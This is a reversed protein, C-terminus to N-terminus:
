WRQNLRWLNKVEESPNLIAPKLVLDKWRYVVLSTRDSCIRIAGDQDTRFIKTNSLNELVQRHPHGYPNEKGASIVGISPNVAQLFAKTSSTRSGHHAVDLVDARLYPAWNLMTWEAEAQVDGTFLVSFDRLDARVVISADNEDEPVFGKQPNLVLLDAGEMVIRDGASVQIVSTKPPVGLPSELHSVVLHGVQFDRLLRGLGGAHDEASHSIVLLDIRDKGRYRLYSSTEIGERGTDFVLVRGDTEVIATKAQGADLFTVMPEHCLPRQLAFALLSLVVLVMSARYRRLFFLVMAIYLFVVGYLSVQPINLYSFPWGSIHQIVNYFARGLADLFAVAVTKGTILFIVVWLFLIPILVFSFFPVVILNVLLGVTSLGKFFFVSIPLTGLFAGATTILYGLSTRKIWNGRVMSGAKQWFLGIFLVAGYSLLFSPSVIAEPELFSVVLASFGLAYLWQRSKGTIMSVAFLVFMIYARLTPVRTGSLCLYFTLVALVLVTIISNLSVRQSIWLLLRYPAFRMVTRLLVFCFLALFGFHAGSIALLHVLGARSFSRYLDA